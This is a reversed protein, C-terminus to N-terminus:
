KKLTQVLEKDGVSVRYSERIKQIAKNQVWASLKNEKLFDVTKDRQKAMATAILWASAMNVYYQETQINNIIAFIQDIYEPTLFYDMMMVIMFRREFEQASNQYQLIFDWVEALESTKFKFSSCVMDCTAWNDIKPVFSKLLKLKEPLSIKIQAIVLGELLTEEYYENKCSQLFEQYNNRAIEKALKRLDPTRVGIINELGPCLGSHFKRYKLDQLTFLKKIIEDRTM